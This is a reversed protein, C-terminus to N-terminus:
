KLTPYATSVLPIHDPPRILDFQIAKQVCGLVCVGCGYCSDPNIKAKLMRSGTVNVMEIADFPCREVCEQCGNCKDEVINAQFRSPAYLEHMKGSAKSAIITNCGCACCNCQVSPMAAVNPGEHVLGAKEAADSLSLAAEPSILKVRAGRGVDFDVHGKKFYFCNLLPHDCAKLSIRCPCEV